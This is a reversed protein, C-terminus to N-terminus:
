ERRSVQRSERSAAMPSATASRTAAAVYNRGLVNGTTEGAAYLGPIPRGEGDIVRAKDDICLGAGTVTLIAPRIEAAYFPPKSIASHNDPMKGFEDDKGAAAAANYRELTATLGDADIGTKEALAAITEGEHVKGKEIQEKLIKTIWQPHHETQVQQLSAPIRRARDEVPRIPDGLEKAMKIDLGECRMAATKPWLRKGRDIGIAVM